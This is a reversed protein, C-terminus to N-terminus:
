GRPTGGVAPRGFAIQERALAQVVALRLENSRRETKGNVSMHYRAGDADITLLEVHVDDSGSAGSLTATLLRLVNAPDADASVCIEFQTRPDATQQRVPSILARLHPVRVEGGRADRLLVDLLGISIVRGSHGGVEVQKGVQLRRTYIVVAGLVISALLPTLALALGLLVANGIRAFVSAPDGSVIPGAFVAALLIIGIRLFASTPAVLDRPLWRAREQGRSVGTFFLEVFRVLVFVLATLAVGIVIIPLAGLVRQALSSLPSFIASTLRATYDRTADFRALSLVLWIYVVSFQLVWRGVIVGALLLGRLPGAGMVEIKNLRIPRIREPHETISDRARKALEGLKRLVYLAILGFFVVLSVSFLARAIDSRKREALLSLRVQTAVNAAYVDLSSRGAADADAPFLEIIPVDDVFVVRAEGHADVRVQGRESDLAHELARTASRARTAATLPGRDAYVRFVLTEHLKVEAGAPQAAPTQARATAVFCAAAVAILQLWRRRSTLTAAHTM